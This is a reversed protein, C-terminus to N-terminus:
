WYLPAEIDVSIFIQRMFKSHDSGALILRQALKLDNQGLLFIEEEKKLEHHYGTDSHSDSFEWSELPNRMGRLAAEFNMIQTKELKIM